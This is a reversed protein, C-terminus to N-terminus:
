AAVARYEHILGGFPQEHGPELLDGPPRRDCALGPAQSERKRRPVGEPQEVKLEMGEHPEAIQWAGLADLVDDPSHPTTALHPREIVPPRGPVVHPPERAGHNPDVGGWSNM